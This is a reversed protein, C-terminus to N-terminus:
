ATSEHFKKEFAALISGNIEGVGFNIDYKSKRIHFATKSSKISQPLSLFHRSTLKKKKQTLYNM